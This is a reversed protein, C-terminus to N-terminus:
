IAEKSRIAEFGPLFETRAAIRANIFARRLVHTEMLGSTLERLYDRAEEDTEVLFIGMPPRKSAAIRIGHGVLLEHKLAAIDRWTMGIDRAIVAMVEANGRGRCNAMLYDYLKREDPAM